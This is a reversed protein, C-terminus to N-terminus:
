VGARAQAFDVDFDEEEIEKLLQKVRRAVECISPRTAPDPSLMDRVLEHAGRVQQSSSVTPFSYSATRAALPLIGHIPSEFPSFAYPPFVMAYLVCGMAFVDSSAYDLVVGQQKPTEWLEPARYAASSFREAREQESLGSGRSTIHVQLPSTRASGFDILVCQKATDDLMFNMPKIDCHAVGAQHMAEVALCCTLYMVLCERETYGGCFQDPVNLLHDGLNGHPYFPFFLSIERDHRDGVYDVHVELLPAIFPSVPNANGLVAHARVEGMAESEAEAGKTKVRKLALQRGDQTTCLCVTSFGGSALEKEVQCVSGNRLSIRKGVLSDTWSTTRPSLNGMKHIKAGHRFESFYLGTAAEQLLMTEALFHDLHVPSLFPSVWSVSLKVVNDALRAEFLVVRRVVGESLSHELPDDTAALVDDPHKLVAVLLVQHKVKTHRPVKSDLTQGIGDLILARSNSSCLLHSFLTLFTPRTAEGLCGKTELIARLYGECVGSPQPSNTSSGFRKLFFRHSIQRGIRNM